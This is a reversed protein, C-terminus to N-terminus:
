KENVSPCFLFTVVPRVSSDLYNYVKREEDIAIGSEDFNCNMDFSTIDYSYINKLDNISIFYTGDDKQEVKNYIKEEYIKKGYDGLIDMMTQEEEPLESKDIYNPEENLPTDPQEKNKNDFLSCGSIMLLAIFLVIIRKKM